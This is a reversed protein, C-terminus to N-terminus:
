WVVCDTISNLGRVKDARIAEQDKLQRKLLAMEAVASHIRQEYERRLVQQEEESRQRSSSELHVLEERLEGVEAQLPCHM